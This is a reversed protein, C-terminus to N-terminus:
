SYQADLQDLMIWYQQYLKNALDSSFFPNTVAKILKRAENHMNACELRFILERKSYSAIGLRELQSLRDLSSLEQNKSM